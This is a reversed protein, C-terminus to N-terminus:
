PHLSSLDYELGQLEEVSRLFALSEDTVTMNHLSRNKHYKVVPPKSYVEFDITEIMDEIEDRILENANKCVSIVKNKMVYLETLNLM